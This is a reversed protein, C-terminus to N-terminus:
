RTAPSGCCPLRPASCCHCWKPSGDRRRSRRPHKSPSGRWSCDTSPGRCGERRAPNPLVESTVSWDGVYRHQLSSDTLRRRFPQRWAVGFRQHCSQLSNMAAISKLHADGARRIKRSGCAHNSDSCPASLFIARIGPIRTTCAHRRHLRLCDSRVVRSLSSPLIHSASLLNCRARRRCPHLRKPHHSACISLGFGITQLM